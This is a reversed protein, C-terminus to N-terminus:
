PRPLQPTAITVPTIQVPTIELPVIEVPTIEVAPLEITPLEVQPMTVAFSDRIALALSEANQTNTFTGGSNEAICRLLRDQEPTTGFGVVDIVVEAGSERLSRAVACPDGACTEEGDTVMIIKNRVNPGAVLDEGARQLALSIPTWGTPEFASAQQLLLPKNVGQVPVLLETSQCSIAKQAETNDGKHGYVRFGVNLNGHSEPLTAIVAAMARRAAQIKTEGGIDQAMSGSADFVLEINVTEAAAEAEQAVTETPVPSAEQAAETAAPPVPTRTPAATRDPAPTATTAHAATSTPPLQAPSDSLQVNVACASCVLAVLLLPVLHLKRM